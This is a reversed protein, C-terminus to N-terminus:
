FKLTAPDTDDYLRDVLVKRGALVKQINLNGKATIEHDKLSPPNALVLARSIRTSSGTASKALEALCAAIRPAHTGGTLAGESGHWDLGEATLAVPNPFILVGIEDRGQGTIIVDQALPGLAGLAAARLRASQVWTGTMLKFDESIRGDFILGANANDPDVFRVADETILFGEDDFAAKTKAPDQYYATMINPGRVRLECRMDADPILKVEVGPMPVGIVGSRNSPEHVILTAPATETMGWSSIMLPLYGLEAIAMEEIDSWLNTPLSAGAYFILDLESFFHRRLDADKKLAEVLLAWGVPVNFALTGTHDKLNAITAEFLGKVPKGTDIYLSGGNALMMNFNHSGGFVHNWPLWDLIKPPRSKVFPLTVAIQAQNVCLMRQTTEVGKPHSTSGSTFLIKALTDLGVAQHATQLEEGPKTNLFDRFDLTQGGKDVSALVPIASTEPLKLAPGYTETDSVYIMSPTIKEIIYRLRDHAEPILSYQEAIPVPIVGIYQAALALLGHDVSNGSLIALRDGYELGQELLSAAIAQVSRLTQAFSLERWGDGQREAIFIRDPTKHAWRHLWVGTNQVVPDIPYDSTLLISGDPQETKTVRHPLFSQRKTM